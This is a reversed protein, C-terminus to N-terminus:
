PAFEVVVRIKVAWPEFKWERVAATALSSFIEPTASILWLGAVGGDETLQVDIVVEGSLKEALLEDPYYPPVFTRLGPGAESESLLRYRVNQESGESYRAFVPEPSPQSVSEAPIAPPAVAAQRALRMSEEINRVDDLYIESLAWYVELMRTGSGAAQELAARVAPIRLEGMQILQVAARPALQSDGLADVFFDRAEALSRSMRALVGRYYSARPFQQGLEAVVELRRRAADLNGGALLIESITMHAEADPISETKMTWGEGSVKIEMRGTRRIFLNLYNTFENELQRESIKLYDPLAMEGRTLEELYRRFADSHRGHLLFHVFAWAQAYFVNAKQRENYYRSKQDVAFFEGLPLLSATRLLQLREPSLEGLYVENEDINATAFYEALGENLWAPRYVLARNLFYHTIEHYVISTLTRPFIRGSLVIFDRDLGPQYFAAVGLRRGNYEPALENLTEQDGALLVEMPLEPLQSAKFVFTGLLQHFKELERLVRVAREEGASSKVVFTDSRVQVWSIFLSLALVPLM